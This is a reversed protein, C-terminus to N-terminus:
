HQPAVSVRQLKQYAYGVGILCLGLGLFSAARWLGTLDAMDVLFAKGLTLALLAFGAQRLDSKPWRLGGALSGLSVLLM